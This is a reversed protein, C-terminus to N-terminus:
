PTLSQLVSSNEPIDRDYVLVVTMTPFDYRAGIIRAGPDPGVMVRVHDNPGNEYLHHEAGQALMEELIVTSVRLEKM